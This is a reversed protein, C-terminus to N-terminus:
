SNLKIYTNYVVIDVTQLDFTIHIQLTKNGRNLNLQFSNKNHRTFINFDLLDFSKYAVYLM